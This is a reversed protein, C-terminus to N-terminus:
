HEAKLGQKAFIKKMYDLVEPSTDALAKILLEVDGYSMPEFEESIGKSAALFGPDKMAKAYAERYAAVIPAPTGSLLALFKDTSTISVWYKFAQQALPDTLKGDMMDVFVPADGLDPRGVFKGNDLSGSQNVIRFRGSELMQGLQSMNGTSTMDIEGRDLALM